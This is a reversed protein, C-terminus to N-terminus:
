GVAGRRLYAASGTPRPINSADHAMGPFRKRADLLRHYVCGDFVVLLNLMLDCDVFVAHLFRARRPPSVERDCERRRNRGDDLVNTQSM